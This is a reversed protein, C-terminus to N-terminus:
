VGQGMKKKLVGKGQWKAYVLFQSCDGDVYTTFNGATWSSNLKLLKVCGSSNAYVKRIRNGRKSIILDNPKLSRWEEKNM